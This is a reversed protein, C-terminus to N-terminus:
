CGSFNGWISFTQHGTARCLPWFERFCLFTGVLFVAHLLLSNKLWFFDVCLASALVTIITLAALFRHLLM